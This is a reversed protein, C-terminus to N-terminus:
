VKPYGATYLDVGGGIRLASCRPTALTSKQDIFVWISKSEGEVGGGGGGGGGGGVCVCVCVCM